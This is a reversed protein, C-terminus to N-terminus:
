HGLRDCAFTSGAMCSAEYLGRAREPDADVGDGDELREAFAMCSPEFGRDCATELMQTGRAHDPDRLGQEHLGALPASTLEASPRVEHPENEEPSREVEPPEVAPSEPGPDPPEVAGEAGCGALLLALTAARTRRM